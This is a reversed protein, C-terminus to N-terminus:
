CIKCFRIAFKVKESAMTSLIIELDGEEDDSEKGDESEECESIQGVAGNNTKTEEPSFLRFAKIFNSGSDTVTVTVKEEIGFEANIAELHKALVNYTLSGKMRRIALCIGLRKLSDPCLWHCTVGLYAKGRSKWADATTCVHDIKALESIIKSKGAVFNNNVKMTLTQRCM